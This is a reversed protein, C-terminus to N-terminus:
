AGTQSGPGGDAPRRRPRWTGSPDARDAASGWSCGATLLPLVCHCIFQFHGLQAQGHFLASYGLPDFLFAVGNLHAVHDYLNGGVLQGVFNDTLGLADHQLDNGLLAIVDGDHASQCPDTLGTLGHAASGCRSDLSCGNNRESGSGHSGGLISGIGADDHHAAAGAAIHSGDAGCLQACLDGQHFLLMQATGAQVDAADGGLAQQVRGFQDLGDLILALFDANLHFAQLDVEGLDDLVLVINGLFQGGTNCTQQLHVLDLLHVAFGAEGSGAFQRDFLGVTRNFFHGGIGDNQSGARDVSLGGDGAQLLVGVADIGGASQAQLGQGLAHHDDAAADDTQLQGASVCSEAGLDGHHLSHGGHQGHQVAIQGLDAHLM